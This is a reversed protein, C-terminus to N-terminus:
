GACSTVESGTGSWIKWRGGVERVTLEVQRLEGRGTEKGKEDFYAVGSSDECAMLVLDAPAYGNGRVNTIRLSGKARRKLGRYAQVVETAERLYPGAATAKMAPTSSTSGGMSLIRYYEARFERYSKEAAEYALRQEREQANETPTPSPASSSPPAPPPEDPTCGTSLFTLLCAGVVFGRATCRRGM